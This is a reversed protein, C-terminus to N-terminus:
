EEPVQALDMVKWEYAVEVSLVDDEDVGAPLTLEPTRARVIGDGLGRDEIEILDGIREVYAERPEEGGEYAFRVAWFGVRGVVLDFEYGSRRLRYRLRDRGAPAPGEVEATGLLHLGTIEQKLKEWAVAAELSGGLGYRQKFEAGLSEVVVQVDDRRIAELLTAVTADPREYRVPVWASDDPGCLLAALDCCGAAPLLLALGLPGYRRLKSRM